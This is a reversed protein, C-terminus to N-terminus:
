CREPIQHLQLDIVEVCKGHHILRVEHLCGGVNEIHFDLLTPLWRCKKPNKKMWEISSRTIIRSLLEEIARETTEQTWRSLDNKAKEWEPNRKIPTYGYKSIDFTPMM